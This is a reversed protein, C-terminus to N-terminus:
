ISVKVVQEAAQQAAAQNEANAEEIANEMERPDVWGANDLGAKLIQEWTFGMKELEEANEYAWQTGAKFAEAMTQAQEEQAQTIEDQVQLKDALAALYNNYAEMAEFSGEGYNEIAKQYDGYAFGLRLNADDLEGSLYKIEAVQKALDSADSNQYGWIKYELERTTAGLDARRELESRHTISDELADNYEDQLDAMENQLEQLKTMQQLYEYYADTAERSDIGYQEQAKAWTKRAIDLRQAQRLIEENSYSIQRALKQFDEADENMTQWYEYEAQSINAQRDLDELQQNTNDMMDVLEQRMQETEIQVQLFTQQAEAAEVSNQGYKKVADQWYTEAAQMRELQFEYQENAQELEKADKEVQSAAQNFTTWSEYQLESTEARRDIEDLANEYIDKITNASSYASSYGGGGTSSFGDILGDTFGDTWSDGSEKGDEYFQERYTDDEHLEGSASYGLYPNKKTERVYRKSSAQTTYGLITGLVNDLELAGDSMGATLGSMYSTGSLYGSNTFIELISETGLEAGIGIDKFLDLIEGPPSHRDLAENAGEIIGDGMAQGQEYATEVVDSGGSEVASNVDDMIDTTAETAAEDILIWGLGLAELTSRILGVIAHYVLVGIGAFLEEIFLGLAKMLQPLGATLGEIARTLANVLPEGLNAIVELIGLVLLGIAQIATPISYLIGNVIAGIMAMSAQGLKPSLAIISDLLRELIIHVADMGTNVAKPFDDGLVVSLATFALVIDSVKSVAEILRTISNVLTMIRLVVIAFAGAGALMAASLVAVGGAAMQCIVATASFGLLATLVMGLGMAFSAPNVANLTLMSAAFINMAVALLTLDAAIIGMIAAGGAGALNALITMEGVLVAIMAVLSVFGQILTPLDMAGLALIPVSLASVGIAIATMAVSAALLGTVDLGKLMAAAVGLTALLGIVTLLGQGLTSLDMSGLLFIPASLTTLATAMAIISIALKGVSGTKVKELLVTATGFITLIGVVSLLGQGLTSLDMSGLIAIPAAMATLGIAIKLIGSASQKIDKGTTGFNQMAYSFALVSALSGALGLLGKGITELDMQGLLAVSASLIGVTVSFQILSKSLVAFNKMATKDFNESLKKLYEMLLAIVGIVASMSVVAIGLKDVPIDALKAISSALVGIMVAIQLFQTDEAIEALVAGKGGIKAALSDFVNGLGEAAESLHHAIENISLALKVLVAIMIFNELDSLTVSSFIGELWDFLTSVVSIILGCGKAIIGSSKLVSDGITDLIKGIAGFGSGFNIGGGSFLSSVVKQVTEFVSSISSGFKGVIGEGNKLSNFIDKVFTSIKAVGSIALVTVLEIIVSLISSIKYVTNYITALLDKDFIGGLTTSSLLGIDGLLGIIVGGLRNFTNLLPDLGAIVAGAVQGITKFVAFIGAVANELATLSAESLKLQDVLNAFMKTVNLLDEVTAKPFIRRFGEAVAEIPEYLNTLAQKIADIFTDRGGQEKWASLVSNRANGSEVFVDYLVESLESWMAKAETYNGFILEFTQMWGSGVAEKVYDIAETFTKTEQAAKFSRRGLEYEEASLEELIDKAEQASIGMEDAAKAIDLTGAIYDDIFGLVQTTMLDYEETIEGLRDAFGGYTDLAKILVDSTFWKDSLADRFNAASVEKGSLTQWTNEAVKTLLGMETATDIVTQKFEITGMNANEISKWDMLTVAGVGMAQSLNYMARGAENVNAGSIAAWTSIGEMAKVATKLEVGTNTFKGINNVMDLFKYSTEDTFWNLTKLQEEVFGMQEGTDAFQNATASMITQVAAVKQEYKSWGATVNDVTLSKLLREGSDVAGNIIRRFTTDAIAYLANFQLSVQQVGKELPSLEVEKAANDIEKFSGVAGDFKLAAKLEDLKKITRDSAKDFQSDDLRLEVVKEDITAM